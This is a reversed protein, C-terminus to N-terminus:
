YLLEDIVYQLNSIVMNHTKEDIFGKKGELDKMRKKIRKTIETKCDNPIHFSENLIEKIKM